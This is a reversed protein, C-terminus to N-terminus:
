TDKRRARSTAERERFTCLRGLLLSGARGSRARGVRAALLVANWPPIGPSVPRRMHMSVLAVCEGRRAGRARAALTSWPPTSESGDSTAAGRVATSYLPPRPPRRRASGRGGCGQGEKLRSTGVCVFLGVPAPRLLVKPANRAPRAPAETYAAPQVRRGPLRRLTRGASSSEPPSM